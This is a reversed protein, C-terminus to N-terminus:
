KAPLSAIFKGILNLSAQEYKWATANHQLFFPASLAVVVMDLDDLLVILQGGHGWAFNFRHSGVTATWWQYGYDLDHFYRAIRTLRDVTVWADPSYGGLSENVWAAPVIQQSDLVGGNLYLSGFTAVDRARLHLNACGNHNGRADQGWEGPEIGLPSFLHERGFSLLDTRCARALIIGLWNSSLNSYNFGAGPDNVLPFTELLPPYDGNLLGAWLASDTEEWPYGARMQLLHRITIRGKRPDSIRDSVEPFFDLIPQDLSDLCGDRLAIGVLASTVSKTVSALRAQQDISGDNFYEEAILRGGKIVLVARIKELEAADNYLETVLTPDLGEKEPTSIAWDDGPQPAYSVKEDAAVSTRLMDAIRRRTQKLQEYDLKFGLPALATSINDYLPRDYDFPSAMIDYATAGSNNRAHRNAGHDLLAQVIEPRGFFAAVHLPTSGNKDRVGPDAGGELLIQAAETKGFTAAVTLPTSGYADKANLDTGAKIHRRIADLNGQLAAIHLSIAPASGDQALLVTPVLVAFAVAAVILTKM